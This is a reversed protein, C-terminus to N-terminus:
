GNTVQASGKLQMALLINLEQTSFNAMNFVPASKQNNDKEFIGHHRGLDRLAGDVDYFEVKIDGWKDREFKKIIGREKDRAIAVMDLEVREFEEEPGDEYRYALPDRELEIEMRLIEDLLYEIKDDFEKQRKQDLHGYKRLVFKEEDEIRARHAEILANLPTKVRTRRKDKVIVLYDNLSARAIDSMRKIVQEKPMIEESIIRDIETRIHPKTYNEYGIARASSESYGASIAAQTKNYGNTIYHFIYQLEKPTFRDPNQVM